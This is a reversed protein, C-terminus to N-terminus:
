MLGPLWLTLVPFLVLVALRVLDAFLFPVIGRFVTSLAVENSIVSRMVFVNMGIPPTIMGIEVLSLTIIGWWILDYGMASILPIIFPATVLVAAVTDFVSGLVLYMIMIVLLIIWHPTAAVDVISLITSTIDSLTLFAAFVNAGAVVVYIVAANFAAEAFCELLARVNFGPSLAAFFLSLIAGVAAAEQTTFVGGYLGSLVLTFLLVPRWAAIGARLLERLDFGTPKPAVQPWVRVQVMIAVLYLTMALLGPILAAVFAKQISVEVLVCYIILVVSPPILAGLTGGAALTGTALSPNYHRDRMETFAVKGFTATTAISSGSIAGFAACGLVSAIPLGGRIGGTLATAARFIDKAMGARVAFSGMLLFLPIASLSTSSFARVTESEVIGYAQRPGIVVYLFGFGTLCLAVGIPLGALILVYLALFAAGARGGSSIEAAGVWWLLGAFVLAVAGLSLLARIATARPARLVEGLRSLTQWLLAVGAFGIALSAAFWFPATPVLLLSTTEHFESADVAKLYLQRSVLALFGTEVVASILGIVVRDGMRSLLLDMTLNRQTLFVPAVIMAVIVSMVLETMEYMGRVSFSGFLTRGVVDLVTAGALALLLAMAVYTVGRAAVHAARTIMHADSGLLDRGPTEERTATM